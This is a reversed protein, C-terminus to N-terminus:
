QLVVQGRVTGRVELSETQRPPDVAIGIEELGLLLPYERSGPLHHAMEVVYGIGAIVMGEIEEALGQDRHAALVAADLRKEVYAAM